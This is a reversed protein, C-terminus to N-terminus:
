SVKATLAPALPAKLFDALFDLATREAYRETDWPPGAVFAVHGGAPTFESSVQDSGKFEIPPVFPDDDAAIVHLPRRVGGLLPGASSLRWYEAASSFGNVPATFRDDFQAFTTSSRVGAVDVRGPFAKAKTLAKHRLRILFRGRYIAPWFGPADLVAACAALDLPPSIAVGARVQIPLAEGREAFWKALVNGGLSFGVVGILRDPQETVLREVVTALDRTDGSHYSPLLRNPEGSCGRFNLALAALGRQKAYALLGRVYGVRSSGELGHLIVLMPSDREAGELRDVDLFDGDPLEWRVRRVSTRPPLRVLSAYVTM